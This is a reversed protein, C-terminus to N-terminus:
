REALLAEEREMAAQATAPTGAQAVAAVTALMQWVLIPMPALYGPYAQQLRPEQMLYAEARVQAAAQAAAAVPQM